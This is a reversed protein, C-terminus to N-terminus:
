SKQKEVLIIQRDIKEDAGANGVEISQDDIWKVYGNKFDGENTITHNSAKVVIFKFSRNMHDNSPSQQCLAFTHSQNYSITYHKGLKSKVIQDLEPHSTKSASSCAVLSLLMLSCALAVETLAAPKPM